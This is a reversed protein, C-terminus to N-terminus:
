FDEPLEGTENMYGLDEWYDLIDYYGAQKVTGDPLTVDICYITHGRDDKERSTKIELAM